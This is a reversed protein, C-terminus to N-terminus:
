EFQFSMFDAAGEGEYTFYLAHKGSSITLPASFSTWDKAPAIQIKAAVPGEKGDRVVFAGTATGRVEISLTKAKQIDFYRYGATAGDVMNQIYQNPNDERDEGEQTFAAKDYQAAASFILFGPNETVTVTVM